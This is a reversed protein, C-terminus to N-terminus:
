MIMGTLVIGCKEVIPIEKNSLKVIRNKSRNEKLLAISLIEFSSDQDKTFDSANMLLRNIKTAHKIIEKNETVFLDTSEPVNEWIILIREPLQPM